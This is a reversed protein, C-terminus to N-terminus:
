SLKRSSLYAGFLDVSWMDTATKYPRLNLVIHPEVLGLIWSTTKADYTEWKALETKHPNKNKNEHDM